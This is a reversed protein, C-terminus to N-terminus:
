LYKHYSYLFMKPTTTALWWSPGWHNGRRTNLANHLGTGYQILTPRQWWCYMASIITLWRWILIYVVTAEMNLLGNEIERQSAAPPSFCAAMNHATRPFPGRPSSELRWGALLQPRGVRSHTHLLITLGLLVRLLKLCCSSLLRTLCSTERGALDIRSM